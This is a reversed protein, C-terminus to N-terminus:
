GIFSTKRCNNLRHAVVGEGRQQPAFTLLGPCSSDGSEQGYNRSVM